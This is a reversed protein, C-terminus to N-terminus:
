YNSWFDVVVVKGRLQRITDGLEKYKVVRLIPPAALLQSAGALCALALAACSWPGRRRKPHSRASSMCMSEFPASV